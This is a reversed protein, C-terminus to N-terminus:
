LVQGFMSMLAQVTLQASVPIEDIPEFGSYSPRAFTVITYGTDNSRRTRRLVGGGDAINGGTNGEITAYAEM